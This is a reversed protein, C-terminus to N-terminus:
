RHGPESLDQLCNALSCALDQLRHVFHITPVHYSIYTDTKDPTAHTRIIVCVGHM